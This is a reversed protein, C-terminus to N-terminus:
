PSNPRMIEGKLISTLRPLHQRIENYLDIDDRFGDLNAQSVESMAEDDWKGLILTELQTLRGIEPPLSTLENGSLDLMKVGDSVAQDIVQLLDEETM